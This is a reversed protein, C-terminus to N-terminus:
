ARGGAWQYNLDVQQLPSLTFPWWALYDLLGTFGGGVKILNWTTLDSEFVTAENRRKWAVTFTGTPDAPLTLLDNVADFLFGPNQWAPTGTGTGNGLLVTLGNRSRDLTRDAVGDIIATSMDAYLTSENPYTWLRGSEIADVDAQTLLRARIALSHMAGEFFQIGSYRSGVTLVTPYKVTWATSDNTLIQTGNLWVNTLTGNSSVILRNEENTLWYAQYDGLLIAQVSLDGLTINLQNLIDKVVAYRNSASSDYLYHNASDDVAFGPTFRCDFSIEPVALETAGIAFTAADAAGDLRVGGGSLFTPNGVLTGGNRAVDAPNRFRELFITREAARSPYVNAVM